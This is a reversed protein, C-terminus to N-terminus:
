AGEKFRHTAVFALIHAKQSPTLNARAPQPIASNLSAANADLWDDVADLAARLDPKTIGVTGPLSRMLQAFAEARQNTNLVAM